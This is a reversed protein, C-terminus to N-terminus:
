SGTLKIKIIGVSFETPRILSVGFNLILWNSAVDAESMTQNLGINVFYAEKPTTGAFAGQRWLSSLFNSTSMKAANWTQQENKEFSLPMLGQSISKKIMEMTRQTNLYKWEQNNGALTRAGWVLIKSVPFIRIANISILSASDLTLNAQASDTITVTLDTVGRLEVNAPAKWVGKQLDTKSIIGAIAGSPPQINLQMQMENCLKKYTPSVKMLEHHTEETLSKSAVIEKAKSEPLLKHLKIKPDINRFTAPIYHQTKLWPYYAAAYALDETGISTRFLEICDPHQNRDLYGTPIDLLAIRNGQKQCHKLMAQYVPFVEAGLTVADPITLISSTREQELAKLGLLLLTSRVAQEALLKQSSIAASKSTPYTGISVIFCDKGGNDFFLQVATYLYFNSNQFSSQTSPIQFPSPASFNNPDILPIYPGGFYHIFEQTSTIRKPTNLLSLRGESAKETFGVFAAVATPVQQIAPLLNPTEELYVGPYTHRKTM